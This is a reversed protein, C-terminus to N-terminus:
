VVALKTRFIVRNNDYNSCVQFFHRVDDTPHGCTYAPNYNIGINHFSSRAFAVELILRQLLSRALLICAVSVIFVTIVAVLFRPRTPWTFFLKKIRLEMIIPRRYDCKVPSKFYNVCIECLRRLERSDSSSNQPSM